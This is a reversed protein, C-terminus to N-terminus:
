PYKHRSISADAVWADLGRKGLVVYITLEQVRGSPQSVWSICFGDLGVTPLSSIRERAGHGQTSAARSPASFHMPFHPSKNYRDVLYV